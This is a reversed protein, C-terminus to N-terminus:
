DTLPIFLSVNEDTFDLDAIKFQGQFTKGSDSFHSLGDPMKIKAEKEKKQGGVFLDILLFLHVVLSRFFVHM